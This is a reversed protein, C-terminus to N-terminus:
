DDEYLENIQDWAEPEDLRLRWLLEAANLLLSAQTLAARDSDITLTGFRKESEENDMDLLNEVGAVLRDRTIHLFDEVDELFEPRWNMHELREATPGVNVELPLGRARRLIKDANM